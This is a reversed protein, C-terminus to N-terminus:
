PAVDGARLNQLFDLKELKSMKTEERFTVLSSLRYPRVRDRAISVNGGVIEIGEFGRNTLGPDSDTERKSIARVLIASVGKKTMVPGACIMEKLM